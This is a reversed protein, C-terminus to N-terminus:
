AMFEDLALAAAEACITLMSGLRKRLDEPDRREYRLQNLYSQKWKELATHYRQLAEAVFETEGKTGSFRPIRGFGKYNRGGAVVWMPEPPEGLRAFTVNVPYARFRDADM